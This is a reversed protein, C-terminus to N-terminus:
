EECVAPTTPAQAILPAVAQIQWPRAGAQVLRDTVQADNEVADEMAWIVGRLLSPSIVNEPPVNNAEAFRAIGDKAFALREFAAPRRDKWAKMPPPADSRVNLVPLESDALASVEDVAARWASLYRRIGKHAGARGLDQRQTAAVALDVLIQDPLVRGPALDKEAAIRDRAHWLARLFGAGRRNRIKQFGHTRRWPDTRSPPGTFHTLAEFEQEAWEFKGAARLDKAVAERLDALLEVDLAAYVLWDRPLPRTSWDVASHEKALRVGLYHEIVTGLGVRPLGLLRCGLETDFLRSPSLGIETLCPLDQTAAHLIWEVDRTAEQIPSLDACAVPDILVIGAGQRKLQILYARQGYRYGSAREADVALPGSGAAIEEAARALDRGDTIVEPIGGAPARLLPASAEEAADESVVDPKKSRVPAPSAQLFVLSTSGAPPASAQGQEGSASFPKGDSPDNVHQAAM